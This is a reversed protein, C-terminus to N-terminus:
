GQGEGFDIDTLSPGGASETEGAPDTREMIEALSPATPPGGTGDGVAARLEQRQAHELAEIHPVHLLIAEREPVEDADRKAAEMEAAQRKLKLAVDVTPATALDINAFHERRLKNAKAKLKGAERYTEADTGFLGDNNARFLPRGDAECLIVDGLDSEDIYAILRQGQREWVRPDRHGYHITEGALRIVVGKNSVTVRQPRRRIFEEAQKPLRREAIATRQFTQLPSLANMDERPRRNEADTHERLTREYEPVTPLKEHHQKAYQDAERHRNKTCNGVYAKGYLRDHCDIACMLSEVTGKEWGSRGNCFHPKAQMVRILGVVVAEDDGRKRRRRDGIGEGEFAKGGDIRVLKPAGYKQYAGWCTRRILETSESYGVATGLVMRSAPCVVRIITPRITKDGHRCLVNAKTGDIEWTHNAPLEHQRRDIKPQHAARWKDPGDLYYDRHFPPHEVAFRKRVTSECAEWRWAADGPHEASKATTLRYAETIPVRLKLVTATFFEFASPGIRTSRGGRKRGRKEAFSGGCARIRRWRRLTSAKFAVGYYTGDGFQAAFVQDARTLEGSRATASRAAAFTDTDDLIRRITADRVADPVRWLTRNDSDAPAGKRALKGLLEPMYRADIHWQRGVKRKAGGPLKGVRYRMTRVPVGLADAAQALPILETPNRLV